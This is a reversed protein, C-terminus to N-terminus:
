RSYHKPGSGEGNEVDLAPSGQIGGGQGTHDRVSGHRWLVADPSPAPNSHVSCQARQSNQPSLASCFCARSPPVVSTAEVAIASRKYGLTVRALPASGTVAARENQHACWARSGPVRQILSGEWRCDFVKRTPRAKRASRAWMQWNQPRGCRELCGFLSTKIPICGILRIRIM